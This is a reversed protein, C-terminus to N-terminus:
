RGTSGKARFALFEAWLADAYAAEHGPAVYNSTKVLRLLEGKQGDVSGTGLSALVQEFIQELGAIGMLDDGVRLAKM